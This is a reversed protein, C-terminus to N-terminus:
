GKKSTKSKSKARVTGNGAGSAFSVSEPSRPSRPADSLALDSIRSMGSGFTVDFVNVHRRGSKKKERLTQGEGERTEKGSDSGHSSNHAAGTSTTSSLSTDNLYVVGRKNELSLRRTRIPMQQPVVVTADGEEVADLDPDSDSGSDSDSESSSSDSSSFSSSVVAGDSSGEYM